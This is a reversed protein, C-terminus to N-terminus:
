MEFLNFTRVNEFEKKILNLYNIFFLLYKKTVNWHLFLIIFYWQM